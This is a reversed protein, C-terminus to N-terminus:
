FGDWSYAFFFFILFFIHECFFINSFFTINSFIGFLQLYIKGVKNVKTHDERNWNCINSLVSTNLSFSVGYIKHENADLTNASTNFNDRIITVNQSPLKIINFFRDTIPFSWMNRLMLIALRLRALTIDVSPGTQTIYAYNIVKDSLVCFFM